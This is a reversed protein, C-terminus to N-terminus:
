RLPHLFRKKRHWHRDHSAKIKLADDYVSESLGRAEVYERLFFRFQPCDDSFLTLNRLSEGLPVEHPYFTMRNIDILTFDHHQGTAECTVNTNNLDHHVIGESHLRAVYQAFDATLARDFDDGATLMEALPRRRNYECVYYIDSVWGGKRVEIYAIEHPTSFGRQRLRAANEFSRLAKNKRFLTYYCRKFVNLAKFHKAVMTRGDHDFSRIENRGQWLLTGEGLAFLHPIQHIFATQHIYEPSLITKM